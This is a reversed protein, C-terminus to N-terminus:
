NLSLSKFKEIIRAAIPALSRGSRGYKNNIVIVLKPENKEYYIVGLWTHKYTKGHQNEDFSNTLVVESSSTKCYIQDKLQKFAKSPVREFFCTGRQGTVVQRMGQLLFEQIEKPIETKILQEKKPSQVRDEYIQKTNLLLPFHVNALKLLAKHPYHINNMFKIIELNPEKGEIECVVRPAYVRGKNAIASFLIAAQLNTALVNQGIAFSYLSSPDFFLDMPMQGQKEFPLDIGTPRSFGFSKAVSYLLLPNQIHDKALISFYPNSSAEIAGQLNVWGINQKQSKILRGGKYMQYIPENKNNKAVTWKQTMPDKRYADFLVMPSDIPAKKFYQKFLFCYTTVLKFVSGVMIPEQYGMHKTFGFGFKPYFSFALDSLSAKNSLQPYTGILPIHELENFERFALLYKKAIHCPLPKLTKKLHTFAKVWELALHAGADIEKKWVLLAKKFVELTAELPTDLLFHNILDTKHIQWFANFQKREEKELYDTYPRVYLHHEKEEKRKEKLFQTFHAERWRSFVTEKFLARIIPRIAEFVESYEKADQLHEELTREQLFALMPHDIAEHHCLLALLDCFLITDYDSLCFQQLSRPLLDKQMLLTKKELQYEKCLLDLTTQLHVIKQLTNFYAFAAFLPHDHPLLFHLFTNLNLVKQVEIMKDQILCEKELRAKRLFLDQKYKSSELWKYIQSTNHEVFDNPDFRPYSAFAYIESTKPDM